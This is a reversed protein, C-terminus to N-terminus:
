EDVVKKTNASGFLDSLTQNLYKSEVPNAFCVFVDKRSDKKDLDDIEFSEVLENKLSKELAARKEDVILGIATIEM